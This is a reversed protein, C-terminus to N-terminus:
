RIHERAIISLIDYNSRESLKVGGLHVVTVRIGNKELVASIVGEMEVSNIGLADLEGTAVGVFQVEEPNIDYKLSMCCRLIDPVTNRMVVTYPVGFPVEDFDCERVIYDFNKEINTELIDMVFNYDYDARDFCTVVVLSEGASKIRKIAGVIDQKLESIDIQMFPVDAKTVIDSLRHFQFDKEMILVKHSLALYQATIFVMLTREIDPPGSVYLVKMEQNGEPIIEVPTEEDPIDKLEEEDTVYEENTGEYGKEKRLTEQRVYEENRMRYTVIDTQGEITSRREGSLIDAVFKPELKGQYVSWGVQVKEQFFKNVIRIDYTKDVLYVLKSKIKVFPSQIIEILRQMGMNTFQLDETTLVLTDIVVPSQDVYEEFAAFSKFITIDYVASASKISDDVFSAVLYLKERLFM